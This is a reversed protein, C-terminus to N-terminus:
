GEQHHRLYSEKNCWYRVFGPLSDVWEMWELDAQFGAQDKLEDMYDMLIHLDAHHQPRMPSKLPPGWMGIYAEWLIRLIRKEETDDIPTRVTHEDHGIHM